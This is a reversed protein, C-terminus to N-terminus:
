ASGAGGRGGGGRVGGMTSSGGEASEGGVDAVEVEGGDGVQRGGEEGGQKLHAVEEACLERVVYRVFVDSRGFGASVPM